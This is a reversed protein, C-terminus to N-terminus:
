VLKTDRALFCDKRSSASFKAITTVTLTEVAAAASRVKIVFVFSRYLQLRRLPTISRKRNARTTGRATIDLFLSLEYSALSSFSFAAIPRLKRRFIICQFCATPGRRKGRYFENVRDSRRFIDSLPPGVAPPFSLLSLLHPFPLFFFNYM